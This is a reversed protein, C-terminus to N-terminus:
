EDGYIGCNFIHTYEYKGKNLFVAAQSGGCNGAILANCKSLIVVSSLYELGKWYDDDKREFHVDQIWQLKNGGFINDYYMRKNTLIESSFREKFMKDIRGDETALYIYEYGLEKKKEEVLNLVSEIEPQIPHGKPKCDTYDTGRCLVGLVRKGEIIQRVENDIYLKADKNLVFFDEYVKGWLEISRNKYIEDFTPFAQVINEASESVQMNSVNIQEYPQRFFWEWINEGNRNRVDVRPIKREVLSTIIFSFVNNLFCINFFQYDYIGKKMYVVDQFDDMHLTLKGRNYRLLDSRGVLWNRNNKLLLKRIKQYNNAKLLNMVEVVPIELNM